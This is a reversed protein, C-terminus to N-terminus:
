GHILTLGQHIYFFIYSPSFCQIIHTDSHQKM